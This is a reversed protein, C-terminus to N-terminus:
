AAIAALMAECNFLVAYVKRWELRGEETEEDASRDVFMPVGLMELRDCIEALTPDLAEGEEAVAFDSPMIALDCSNLLLASYDPATYEGSFLIADSAFGALKVAEEAGILQAFAYMDATALYASEVPREILTVNEEIGAPLETGADYVLYDGVGEVTIAAIGGAYRYIGFLQAVAIEDTAEYTLGAIEPVDDASQGGDELAANLGIYITYEVEHPQSMATTMGIIRNNENLTVPIEFTSTRDSHSGYYIRGNAKVYTYNPSSFVITATVKGGSVNIKTCSITVKGTGGSYSFSDPTYTGDALTTSNNVKKTSGSRDTEPARTVEPTPKPTPAAASGGSGIPKLTSSKFTLLRDYWADKKISHAAVNFPVDLAPVSITYTYMGDADPVFRIYASSNAAEAEAKTGLFLKDYGTGSLTIVATYKGNKVTLVAKVVRFMDASSEVEVTYDGDAPVVPKNSADTETPEEPETPTEIKDGLEAPITLQFQKNTYWTGDPKGPVFDISQGLYSKPLEFTLVYGTGDENLTGQVYSSKDADDKSGLYIKDYTTSGTVITVYIKGGSVTATSSEIKFMKYGSEIGFKYDGDEFEPEQPDETESPEQPEDPEADAPLTVRITYAVEKLDGMGITAGLITNDVNLAVPITFVAKGDVIKADYKDGSAKVYQYKTSSFAITAFSKGGAVTVESCTITVKGTGGSVSFAGETITYTGDALATSNDVPETTGNPEEAAEAIPMPEAADLTVINAEDTAEPEAEPEPTEEADEAEESAEPTEIEEPARTEEPAEPERTTETEEPAATTEATEPEQTEPQMTEAAATPEATPEPTADGEALALCAGLLMTLAVLLAIWRNMLRKM